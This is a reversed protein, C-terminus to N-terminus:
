IVVIFLAATHMQGRDWNRALINVTNVFISYIRHQSWLEQCVSAEGDEPESGIRDGIEKGDGESINGM